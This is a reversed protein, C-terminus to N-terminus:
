ALSSWDVDAVAPLEPTDWTQGRAGMGVTTWEDDGCFNLGREAAAQALDLLRADREDALENRLRPLDEALESAPEGTLVRRASEFAWENVDMCTYLTDIPAAFALSVGGPYERSALQVPLGLAELVREVQVQWVAFVDQAVQGEALQVELVAGPHDWILNPGTLRRSDTLQM